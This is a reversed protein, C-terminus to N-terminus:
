AMYTWLDEKKGIEKVEYDIGTVSKLDFRDVRVSIATYLGIYPTRFPNQVPSRTFPPKLSM